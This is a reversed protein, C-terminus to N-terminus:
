WYRPLLPPQPPQEVLRSVGHVFPYLDGWRNPPRGCVRVTKAEADSLIQVSELGMEALREQSPLGQEARGDSACCALLLGASIALTRM